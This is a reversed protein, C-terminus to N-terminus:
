PQKILHTQNIGPNHITQEAGDPWRISVSDVSPNRQLGFTLISESQSLYGKASNVTKFSRVGKSEVMVQAGLALRNLGKGRLDLRIWNFESALDNRLLRPPGAIQTLVVDLDGDGDIDGFASGRGVIPQVLEEYGPQDNMKRFFRKPHLGGQNWFLQASQRYTQGTLLTEMRDEIHGNVTLLDMRGDLDYDFFFVGFTLVDRSANGIGHALAQDSFFLTERNHIYLATMESAFNGIAIALDSSTDDIFATDIGMAGRAGGFTDYAIGTEVGVEEFLGKGLNRFVLNRVTDNAVVLDLRGDRDVDVPSVGLSKAMPEGSGPHTVHLGASAAAEVFRGNGENRFLYPFAGRYNMPPGYARGIGPLRYDVLLDLDRNWQVYNCVFLDLDGDQDYDIFCGSTSWADADGATGTELTVDQFRGEGLNKFLKNGGVATVYLDTLGDGNYDGCVVGMGYFVSELGSGETIPTFRIPGGKITDNRYLVVSSSPSDNSTGSWPWSCGNVFVLDPDSDNDMDFFAVGGGMTEPLLKEGQAGNFHVFDIGAQRAIESFTVEPYEAIAPEEKTDLYPLTEKGQWFFVILVVVVVLVLISLMRNLGAQQTASDSKGEMSSQEPTM